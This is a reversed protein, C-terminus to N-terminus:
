RARRARAAGSARAHSRARQGPLDRRRRRLRGGAGATLVVVTALAPGVMFALNAVSATLARADQVEEAAVTQPLLGSYAPQFFAQAAGFLAEIVAVEWIRVTGSVILAALLAHLTGRGLDTAIVIRQRPLRDAWVGGFLLLAILPLSQSALVISLDSPSGSRQTIFIALAVVVVRDGVSSAAQGVFLYRFDPHRLVRLYSSV